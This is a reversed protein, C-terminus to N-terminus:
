LKDELRLLQRLDHASTGHRKFGVAVFHSVNGCRLYGYSKDLKGRHKAYLTGQQLGFDKALKRRQEIKRAARYRREDRTM